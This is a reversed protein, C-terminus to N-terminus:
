RMAQRMKQSTELAGWIALIGVVAGTIILNTMEASATFGVYASIILWIGALFNVWHQWM